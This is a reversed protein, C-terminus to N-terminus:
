RDSDGGGLVNQGGRNEKKECKIVKEEVYQIKLLFVSSPIKQLSACVCLKHMNWTIREGAEM